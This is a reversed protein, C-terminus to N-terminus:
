IVIGRCALSAIPQIRKINEDSM